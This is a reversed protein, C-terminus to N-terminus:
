GDCHEENTNCCELTQTSPATSASDAEYCTEDDCCDEGPTDCCDDGPSDCCDPIPTNCSKDVATGCSKAAPTGCCKDVSTDRCSDAAGKHEPSAAKDGGGCCGPGDDAGSGCCGGGSRDIERSARAHDDAVTAPGDCRPQAPKDQGGGCCGSGM